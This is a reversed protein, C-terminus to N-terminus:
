KTVPIVGAWDVATVRIHPSSQALGIGWVGSGAALDLINIPQRAQDLHLHQALAQTMPYSLPFLDEVFEHFFVSGESEQNVSSAPKGTRIQETLGLWRPLLQQ